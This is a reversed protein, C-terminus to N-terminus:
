GKWPGTRSGRLWEDAPVHEEAAPSFITQRDIRTLAGLRHVERITAVLTTWVDEANWERRNTDWAPRYPWVCGEREDPMQKPEIRLQTCILVYLDGATALGDLKGDAFDTRFIDWCRSLLTWLQRHVVEGREKRAQRLAKWAAVREQLLAFRAAHDARMRDEAAARRCKRLIDKWMYGSRFFFPRVELFCLATEVAAPEGAAVRAYFGGDWGGPLCLSAYRAHFEACAQSWLERLAQSEDRRKVTEHIRSHLRRLEAADEEIQEKIKASHM